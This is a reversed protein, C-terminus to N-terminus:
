HNANVFDAIVKAGNVQITVYAAKGSGSTTAVCPEKEKVLPKSVIVGNKDMEYVRPEPLKTSNEVSPSKYRRCRRIM